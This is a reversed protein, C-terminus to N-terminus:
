LPHRSELFRLWVWATIMLFHFGSMSVAAPGTAHASRLLLYSSPRGGRPSTFDIRPSSGFATTFREALSERSPRDRRRTGGTLGDRDCRIVFNEVDLKAAALFRILPWAAATDELSLYAGHGTCRQWSDVAKSIDGSPTAGMLYTVLPAYKAQAVRGVDADLPHARLADSLREGADVRGKHVSPPVGLFHALLAQIREVDVLALDGRAAIADHPIGILLDTVAQLVCGFGPAREPSSPADLSTAPNVNQLSFDSTVCPFNAAAAKATLEECFLLRRPTDSRQLRKRLADPKLALWGSAATVSFPIEQELAELEVRLQEEPLHYYDRLTTVASEHGLHAALANVQREADADGSLRRITVTAYTHRLSHLNLTADGTMQRMVARLLARIAVENQIRDGDAPSGFVLKSQPALERTRRSKAAQLAAITSLDNILVERRAAPTKLDGHAPKPDIAILRAGPGDLRISELALSLVEGCRAGTGLLTEFLLSADRALRSKQAQLWARVAQVEHDWLVNARPPLDVHKAAVREGQLPMDLEDCLYVHFASLAATAKGKSSADAIEDVISDYRATLDLEDEDADFIDSFQIRLGGEVLSWYERVTRLAPRTKRITGCVLMHIAFGVLMTDIPDRRGDECLSRLHALSRRRTVYEPEGPVEALAAIVCERLSGASAPPGSVSEEQFLASLRNCDAESSEQDADTSLPASAAERALCASPLSAIPAVGIVHCTLYGSLNAAAWAVGDRLLNSLFGSTSTTSVASTAKLVETLADCAEAFPILKHQPLCIRMFPSLLRRNVRGADDWEVYPQAHWARVRSLGEYAPGLQNASVVIEAGILLALPMAPNDLSMLTLQLLSQQFQQFRFAAAPADTAPHLLVRRTTTCLAAEWPSNPKTTTM